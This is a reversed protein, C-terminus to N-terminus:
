WFLNNFWNGGEEIRKEKNKELGERNEEEEIRKEEAKKREKEEKKRKREERKRKNELKKRQKEKEHSFNVSFKCEEYILNFKFIDKLKDFKFIKGDIESNGFDMIYPEVSYPNYSIKYGINDEKFDRHAIKYSHLIDLKHKLKSFFDDVIEISDNFIEKIKDVEEIDLLSTKRVYPHIYPLVGDMKEMIIIVDRTNKIIDDKTIDSYKVLNNNRTLNYNNNISDIDRDEGYFGCLVIDRVKPTVDLGNLLALIDVENILDRNSNFNPLGNPNGFLRNIKMVYDKYYDPHGDLLKIGFVLSSYGEGILDVLDINDVCSSSSKDKVFGPSDFNCFSIM